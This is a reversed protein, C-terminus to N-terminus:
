FFSAQSMTEKEFRTAVFNFREYSGQFLGTAIPGWKDRQKEAESRLANYPSGEHTRSAHKWGFRGIPAWGGDTIDAYILARLIEYRDFQEEYSQGLFLLDELVPRLTDFLYESQPTHKREYGPLVKWADARTLELM